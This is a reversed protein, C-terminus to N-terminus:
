NWSLVGVPSDANGLLSIFRPGLIVDLPSELLRRFYIFDVVSTYPNLGDCM